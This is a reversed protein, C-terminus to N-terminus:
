QRVLPQLIGAAVLEGESLGSIVEAEVNNKAGVEVYREEQSGDPRVIRVIATESSPRDVPNGFVPEIFITDSHRELKLANPTFRHPSHFLEANGLFTLAGLPVKLVNRVASTLFFVQATMGPKLLRDANPIEMLADFHVAAGFDAHSPLPSIEALRGEWRRAGGVLTTFYMEMGPQLRAIDVETIKALVKVTSLDGIKLIIPTSQLANLTQGEEVLVELITGNSPATIRTFDLLAKAEEVSAEAQKIQLVHRVRTTEERTLNVVAQEYEVETTANEKMLREQRRLQARSLALTADLSETEALLQELNAQAAEVRTQQISDDVEALLEGKVVTDGLKVHM